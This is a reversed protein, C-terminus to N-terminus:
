FNEKSELLSSMGDQLDEPASTRGSADSGNFAPLTEAVGSAKM